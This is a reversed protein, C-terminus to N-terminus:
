IVTNPDGRGGPIFWQWSNDPLKRSDVGIKTKAYKLQDLTIGEIAAKQEIETVPLPGGYLLTGLWERVEAASRRDNEPRQYRTMAEQATTEVAGDKWEVRAVNVAGRPTEVNTGTLRFALNTNISQPILNNKARLFLVSAGNDEPNPIVLQVNRPAEGFASSGSIWHLVTGAKPDKHPHLIVIVTLKMEAALEGLPGLIARIDAQRHSDTKGPKSLYATAPDIMIGRVDGLRKLTAHLRPLDHTLDFWKGAMKLREVKDLDAGNAVLRPVITDAWDDEASLIIWRGQPATGDCPWEGGVTSKAIISYVLTSKGAETPGFFVNVKLHAIRNKWLWEVPRMEVASARETEFAQDQAQKRPPSFPEWKRPVLLEFEDKTHGAAIWDVIDNSQGTLALLRLSSTSNALSRGVDDAWDQGPKDADNLIVVHANALLYAHAATWAYAGHENTTAVYGWAEMAKAKLEGEVLYITKGDQIAKLVKKVQYLLAPAFSPRSAFGNWKEIFRKLPKGTRVDIYDLGSKEYVAHQREKSLWLRDDTNYFQTLDVTKWKVDKPLQKRAPQADNFNVGSHAKPYSSGPDDTM